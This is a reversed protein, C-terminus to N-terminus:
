RKWVCRSNKQLPVVKKRCKCIKTCFKRKLVNEAGLRYIVGSFLKFAGLRVCVRLVRWARVWVRVWRAM